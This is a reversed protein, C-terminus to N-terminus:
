CINVCTFHGAGKFLIGGLNACLFSRIRISSNGLVRSGMWVWVFLGFLYGSNRHLYYCIVCPLLNVCSGENRVRNVDKYVRTLRTAFTTLSCGLDM